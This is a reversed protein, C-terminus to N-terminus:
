TEYKLRPFEAKLAQIMGPPLVASFRSCAARAPFPRENLAPQFVVLLRCLPLFM